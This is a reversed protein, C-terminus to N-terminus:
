YIYSSPNIPEGGTWLEFHLHPKERIEIIASKGIKGIVQGGNISDGEKVYINEDLNKYKSIINGDHLVEVSYGWLMDKYVKQVTGEWVSFVNEGVEAEYDIGSHTRWDGMTKSFGPEQSYGNLIQNGCPFLMRDPPLKIQEEIEVNSEFSETETLSQPKEINETKSSTPFAFNETSKFDSEKEREEPSKTAITKGIIFCIIFIGIIIMPLYSIKNKKMIM